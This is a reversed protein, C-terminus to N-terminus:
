NASGRQEALAALLVAIVVAQGHAFSGQLDELARAVAEVRQADETLQAIVRKRTADVM